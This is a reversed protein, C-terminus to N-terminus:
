VLLLFDVYALLSHHLVQDSDDLPPKFAYITKLLSYQEVTFQKRFPDMTSFFDLDIDLVYGKESLMSLLTLWEPSRLFDNRRSSTMADNDDNDAGACRSGTSSSSDESSESMCDENVDSLDRFPHNQAPAITEPLEHTKVDEVNVDATKTASLVDSIEIVNDGFKMRKCVPSTVTASKSAPTPRKQASDRRHGDPTGPVNTIRTTQSHSHQRVLLPVQKHLPVKLLKRWSQIDIVYLAVQRKDLLDSELCFLNEGVFYPLKSTVRYFDHFLYLIKVFDM